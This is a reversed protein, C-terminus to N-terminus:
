ILYNLHGFLMIVNGDVRLPPSQNSLRKSLERWGQDVEKIGKRKSQM